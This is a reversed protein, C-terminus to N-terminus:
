DKWYGKFRSDSLQVYKQTNQVNKHGMFLQLDWTSMGSSALKYGAAHRLQHPHVPFELGAAVGLRAVMKRFGITAFPAGRESTFVFASAPEQERKLRRLARLERGSLPHVSPVGNKIRNIHIRGANFDIAEWKLTLLEAARLGHRYAMLVMTSDRHGHRNDGAAKILREVEEELLYERVRVAINPQRRHRRKTDVTDSETDPTVLKLRATIPM